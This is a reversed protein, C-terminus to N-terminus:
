EPKELLAQVADRCATFDLNRYLTPPIDFFDMERYSWVKVTDGVVAAAHVDFQFADGAFTLSRVFSHTETCIAQAPLAEAMMRSRLAEASAFFAFWFAFNMAIVKQRAQWALLAALVGVGLPGLLFDIWTTFSVLALPTLILPWLTGINLLAVAAAFAWTILLARKM